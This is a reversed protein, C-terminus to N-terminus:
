PRTPRMPTWICRLATDTAAAYRWTALCLSERAKRKVSVVDGDKLGYVVAEDKSMHMHRASIIVGQPVDVSGKPGVLKAGPTNTVDGSMRVMPKVGLKFADTLSVEIQTAKRVPGLVRIGAISGRPGVLDVKEESAFQGPQTLPKMTKLAYGEGFLIALDKESLHIHRASAAAPVYYEGQKAAQM